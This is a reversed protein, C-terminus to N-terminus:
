KVGHYTVKIVAPKIDAGTIGGQFTYTNGANSPVSPM